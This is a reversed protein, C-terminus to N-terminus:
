AENRRVLALLSEAREFGAPCPIKFDVIFKRMREAAQPDPLRRWNFYLPMYHDREKASFERLEIFPPDDHFPQKHVLQAQQNDLVVMARVSDRTNVPRYAHLFEYVMHRCVVDNHFHSSELHDLVLLLPTERASANLGHWFATMLRKRLNGVLANDARKDSGPRLEAFQKFGDERLPARIYSCHGDKTRVALIRDLITLYDGGIGRFDVYHITYGALARTEMLLQVFSTRGSDSDGHVVLLGARGAAERARWAAHRQPWRGVFCLREHLTPCRLLNERASDSPSSALPVSTEPAGRVWLRPVYWETAHAGSLLSRRVDALAHAVPQGAFLNDYFGRACEVATSGLIERQMSVVASAGIDRFARTLSWADPHDSGSHCADLYVLRPVADLDFATTIQDYGWSHNSLDRESFVRLEPEGDKVRGHGIFHFVHPKFSQLALALDDLTPQFLFKLMIDGRTRNAAPERALEELAYAEDLAQVRTDDSKCGVVVLMRLPWESAVPVTSIRTDSSGCLWPLAPDSFLPRPSGPRRMLEWPITLLEPSRLDLTVTGCTLARLADDIPAPALREYLTTGATRLWLKLNKKEALDPALLGTVPIDDIDALSVGVDHSALLTKEGDADLQYLAIAHESGPVESSEAYAHLFYM